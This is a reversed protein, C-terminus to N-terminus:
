GCSSRRQDPNAPRGALWVGLSPGRVLEMAFFHRGEIGHAGVRLHPGNPHDPGLVLTAAEREFLLLRKADVIQTRRVVKLAAPRRPSPQEAEYVM